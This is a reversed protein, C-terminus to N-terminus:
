LNGKKDIDKIKILSWKGKLKGKNLTFFLSEKEQINNLLEMFDVVNSSVPTAEKKLNIAKGTKIKTKIWKVIKERFQNHYKESEWIPLM